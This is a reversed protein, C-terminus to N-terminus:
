GGPPGGVVGAVRGSVAAGVSPDTGPVATAGNGGPAVFAALNTGASMLAQSRSATKWREIEQPTAGWREWLATNPVGLSSMKVLADVLEGETRFEPNRWITETGSDTGLPSGAAALFLRVVDELPEEFHRTHRKVRSVLAAEAAKLAEAALNVMEGLLYHPPTAVIAAIARVDESYVDVFPKLDTADFQGFTTEPSEAVFLRDIASKFPEVPRGQEDTPIDFGTVWKQKFAGYEQAMMRDALTKNIRDQIDIVGAIESTGAALMRPRNPFEVLPVVGLPNGGSMSAELEWNPATVVGPRRPASYTIVQLPLYVTAMLREAIDDYWVKLGAARVRRSGPQYGVIAQSPHEVTVTPVGGGNDAPDVLMYATGCVLSELFVLESEFDLNNSQWIRWADDNVAGAIRFGDVHMREVASDIVLQMYNARSMALMRQFPERAKEHLTPLPHNGRYYNDFVQLSPQRDTLQRYLRRLWWESSMPEPPM